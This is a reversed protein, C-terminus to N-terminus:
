KRLLLHVIKRPFFTVILGLRYSYSKKMENLEKSQLVKGARFLIETYGKTEDFLNYYQNVIENKAM